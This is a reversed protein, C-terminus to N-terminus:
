SSHTATWKKLQWRTKVTAVNQGKQDYIDTTMPVWFEDGPDNPWADPKRSVGKVRGRAQKHYEVHLEGIIMRYNEPSFNQALLIGAPYEGVLALFCAHAGGVHNRTKWGSNSIVEVHDPKVHTLRLGLSLNFPIALNFLNDLFKRKLFDGPLKDAWKFVDVKM